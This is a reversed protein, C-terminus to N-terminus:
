CDGPSQREKEFIQKNNNELGKGKICKRKLLSSNGIFYFKSLDMSTCYFFIKTKNLM